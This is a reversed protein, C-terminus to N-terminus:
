LDIAMKLSTYPHGTTFVSAVERQHPWPEFGPTSAMHSNTSNTTPERRQEWLNKKPYERKGREKFFCNWIGIRCPILSSTISNFVKLNVCQSTKKLKSDIIWDLYIKPFTALNPPWLNFPKSTIWSKLPPSLLVGGGWGVTQILPLFIFFCHLSVKLLLSVLPKSIVM